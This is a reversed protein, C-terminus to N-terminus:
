RAAPPAPSHVWPPAAPATYARAAAQRRLHKRANHNELLTVWNWILVSAVSWWGALLNHLLANDLAAECQALTGTVTYTQNFMLIVAGTHKRVRVAFLPQDGPPPPPPYGPRSACHAPPYPHPYVHPRPHGYPHRYDPHPTSM